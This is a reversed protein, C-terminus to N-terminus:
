LPAIPGTTTLSPVHSSLTRLRASLSLASRRASSPARPMRQYSNHRVTQWPGVAERPLDRWPLGTRYRYIIGDITRRHDAFPRGTKGANRPLCPAM